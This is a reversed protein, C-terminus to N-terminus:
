DLIIKQVTKRTIHELVRCALSHDYYREIELEHRGFVHCFEKALELATANHGLAKETLIQAWLECYEAHRLLLRWSVTQPRTPMNLHSSALAREQACLDRVHSLQAAHDPNCYDSINPDKSKTGEMYAFDFAKSIQELLAVAQKWDKGYIHSFYDEKLAEYDVDRDMLTAAYVYVAFGNPFSSRQSGDEMYGRLGMPKIGRVDEYIRRAISMGGPDLFQHRWFHYEFCYV